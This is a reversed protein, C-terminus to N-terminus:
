EWYACTDIEEFDLDSEDGGFDHLEINLELGGTDYNRHLYTANPKCPLVVVRGEDRDEVLASLEEVTGLAQYEFLCNLVDQLRSHDRKDFVWRTHGLTYVIRETSDSRSIREM